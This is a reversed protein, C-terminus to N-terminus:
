HSRSWRPLRFPKGFQQHELWWPKASWVSVLLVTMIECPKCSKGYNHKFCSEACSVFSRTASTSFVSQCAQILHTHLLYSTQQRYTSDSIWRNQNTRCKWSLNKQPKTGNKRATNEFTRSGISFCLLPLFVSSKQPFWHFLIFFFFFVLLLFKSLIIDLKAWNKLDKEETPLLNISSAQQLPGAFYIETEM